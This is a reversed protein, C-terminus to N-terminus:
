RVRGAKVADVAKAGLHRELLHFYIGSAKLKQIHESLAEKLSSGKAVAFGYQQEETLSIGMQLSDFEELLYLAVSSDTVLAQAKGSAVLEFMERESDAYVLEVKPITSLLAEYTTGVVTAVKVRALSELDKTKQGAPEILVLRVPFYPAAFDSRAQREPTIALMAAVIDAEGRELMPLLEDFNEVWRIELKQGRVDAFYRLIDYEIGAPKDNELYFFPKTEWTLIRLTETAAPPTFALLAYALLTFQM